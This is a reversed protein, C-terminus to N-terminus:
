HRTFAAVAQSVTHHRFPVAKAYNLLKYAALLPPPGFLWVPHPIFRAKHSPSHKHQVPKAKQTPPQTAPGSGNSQSIIKIHLAPGLSCIAFQQLKPLHYSQRCSSGAAIKLRYPRSHRILVM